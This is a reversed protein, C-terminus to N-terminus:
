SKNNEDCSEVEKELYKRFEFILNKTEQILDRNFRILEEIIDKQDRITKNLLSLYESEIKKM